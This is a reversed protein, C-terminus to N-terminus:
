PKDGPAPADTNMADTGRNDAVAAIRWSKNVLGLVYLESFADQRKKGSREETVTSMQVWVTALEGDVRSSLIQPTRSYVSTVTYVVPGITRWHTVLDGSIKTTDNVGAHAPRLTFQVAGDAVLAMAADLNRESIAKNFAQVVAAPDDAALLPGSFLVATVLLAARSQRRFM